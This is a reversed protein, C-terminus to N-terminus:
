LAPALAFVGSVGGVHRLQHVRVHGHCDRSASLSAADGDVVITLPAPSM